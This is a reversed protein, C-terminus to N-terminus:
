TYDENVAFTFRRMLIISLLLLLGIIIANLLYPFLNGQVHLILKFFNVIFPAVTVALYNVALVLSLALTSRSESSSEVAKDYIIPQIIGYGVGMAAASLGFLWDTHAFYGILLGAFIFFVAMPITVQKFTKIVVPLIFGPVMIAIFFVATIVGIVADDIKYQAALFPLYFNMVGIAYTALGYLIMVGTLQKWNIGEKPQITAPTPQNAGRKVAEKRGARAEVGLPAHAKIKILGKSLLFPTLLLPIIPTMYVIFPMRWNEKALLGVVLTAIVLAFNAIGSKIGLQKMRYKGTFYEAIFGAAIPIVLGSGIGLLCSIVILETMSKAFFYLVGSLLYILLAFVLIVVKNKSVSLKGSLLVFPIIFLNPLITLLQVELESASPFVSKINSLIPTIALGPLNVVLSISWIAILSILPITGRGTEIKM